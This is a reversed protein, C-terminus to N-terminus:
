EDGKQRYRDLVPIRETKDCKWQTVIPKNAGLTCGLDLLRTEKKNNIEKERLLHEIFDLLEDKSSDRSIQTDKFIGLFRSNSM